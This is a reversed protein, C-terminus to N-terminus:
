TKDKKDLYELVEGATEHIQEDDVRGLNLEEERKVREFSFGRLLYLLIRYHLQTFENPFLELFEDEGLDEKISDEISKSDLIEIKKIEIKKHFYGKDNEYSQINNKIENYKM